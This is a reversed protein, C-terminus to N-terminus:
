RSVQASATEKIFDTPQTLRVVRGPVGCVTTNREIQGRGLSCAGVVGGHGVHTQPMLVANSGIFALEELCSFGSIRSGPSLQCYDGVVVDHGVSVHTNIIVHKGIRANNSVVSCPGVYTGALVRASDAVLATPHILTAPKWGLANAAGSLRQRASNDGVACFYWVQDTFRGAIQEIPGHVPYGDHLTGSKREDSDAFGLVNWAANLSDMKHSASTIERAVWAAEAGFGGAGIIMLNQM